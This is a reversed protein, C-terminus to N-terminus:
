AALNPIPGFRNDCPESDKIMWILFIIQGILPICNIFIWGGGKGIDHLRRVTLGLSPLFFILSVAGSVGYYLYQNGSAFLGFVVEIAFSVILSFLEFWWYESRSARGSFKCYQNFAMSVAQSFSVQRQYM